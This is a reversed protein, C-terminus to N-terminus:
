TIWFVEYFMKNAIEIIFKGYLDILLLIGM